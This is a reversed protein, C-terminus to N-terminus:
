YFCHLPSVGTTRALTTPEARAESEAKKNNHGYAGVKFEVQMGDDVAGDPRIARSTHTKTGLYPAVKTPPIFSAGYRM